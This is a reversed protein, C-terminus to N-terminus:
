TATADSRMPETKSVRDFAGSCAQPSSGHADGDDAGAIDAPGDGALEDRVPVLHEEDLLVGVGDAGVGDRLGLPQEGVGALHVREGLGVELGAVHGDGGGAVVLGVEDM